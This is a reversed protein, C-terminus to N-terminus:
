ACADCVGHITVEIQRRAIARPTRPGKLELKALEVVAGCSTCVFSAPIAGTEDPPRARRYRWMDGLHLRGVLRARVLVNLARFITTRELQPLRQVLEPHSLARGSSLADLVAIRTNTARLGCARIATRANEARKRFGTTPM